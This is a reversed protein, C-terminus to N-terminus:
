STVVAEAVFVDSWFLVKCHTLHKPVIGNKDLLVFSAFHGKAQIARITKLYLVLYKCSYARTTILVEDFNWTSHCVVDFFQVLFRAARTARIYKRMWGIIDNIQPSTFATATTLFLELLFRLSTFRTVIPNLSMYHLHIVKHGKLKHVSRGSRVDWM